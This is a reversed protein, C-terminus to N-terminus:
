PKLSEKFAGNVYNHLGLWSGEPIASHIRDHTAMVLRQRQYQFEIMRNMDLPQHSARAQTVYEQEQVQWTALSVLFTEIEETVRPLDGDSIRYIAATRSALQRAVAPEAATIKGALAAHARFFAFYLEPDELNLQSLPSPLKQGAVPLTMALLFLLRCQPRVIRSFLIRQPTAM